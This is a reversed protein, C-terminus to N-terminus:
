KSLEKKRADKAKKLATYAKMDQADLAKTAAAKFAADLGSMTECRHFEDIQEAVDGNSMGAANGDDDLNGDTSALGCVSEFTCGKAYTIASKIEQLPNKSGSKDPPFTISVSESHGRAHRLMCTVKVGNSQDINWDFDLGHKSLFPTVTQVLNGLSTYMSDYQKNKKDKTIIIPESKFDAKAAVFAKRAEEAEHERRLSLLRDLKDLDGEAAIASILIDMYSRQQIAQEKVEVVLAESM